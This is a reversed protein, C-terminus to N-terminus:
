RMSSATSRLTVMGTCRSRGVEKLATSSWRGCSTPSWTSSAWRLRTTHYPERQRGTFGQNSGDTVIKWGAVRMLADGQGAEVGADDWGPQESYAYARIRAKMLGGEYMARYGDLEAPDPWSRRDGYRLADHHRARCGHDGVRGDPQSSDTRCAIPSRRMSRNLIPLFALQCRLDRRKPLRGRLSRVFRRTPRRCTKAQYRGDRPSRSNVYAIHGPPM